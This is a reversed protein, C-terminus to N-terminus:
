VKHPPVSRAGGNVIDTTGNDGKMGFDVVKVELGGFRDLVSSLLPEVDLVFLNLPLFISEGSEVRGFLHYLHPGPVLLRRRSFMFLRLRQNGPDM